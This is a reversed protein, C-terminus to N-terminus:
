DRPAADRAAPMRFRADDLEPNIEIREVTLAQKEPRGRAGSRISFPWRLGGAERYDGIESEGEVAAGRVVRKTEVRMPLGSSADLFHHEVGGTKLVVKIEYAERGGVKSKGLLEVRHGKARYDVLPGDIDFDAAMARAAEAPLTEPRGTGMPPIGWATTGDFAQVARAGDVVTEVRIRAPRKVEVVMTAKRDGASVRGTMRISQVAKLKELGGRAELSRAIIEDVTQAAVPGALVALILGPLARRMM